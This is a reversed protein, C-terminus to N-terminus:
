EQNEYKGSAKKIGIIVAYTIVMGFAVGITTQMISDDDGFIIRVIFYGFIAGMILGVLSKLDKKMSEGRGYVTVYYIQLPRVAMQEKALLAGALLPINVLTTKRKEGAFLM